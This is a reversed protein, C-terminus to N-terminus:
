INALVSFNAGGAGDATEKDMKVTVPQGAPIKYAKIADWVGNVNLEPTLKSGGSEVVVKGTDVLNKITDDKLEFRYSNYPYSTDIQYTNEIWTKSSDPNATENKSTIKFNIAPPTYPSANGENYVQKM